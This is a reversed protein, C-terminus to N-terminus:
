ERLATKLLLDIMSQYNRQLIASNNHDKLNEFIHEKHDELIHDAYIAAHLRNQSLLYLTKYCVNEIM